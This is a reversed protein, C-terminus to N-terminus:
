TAATTDGARPPRRAHRHSVKRFGQLPVALLIRTGGGAQTDVTLEGGVAAARRGLGPLGRHGDQEAERARLPDIGRGDDEVRAVIRGDRVEISVDVSRAESHRAANHISEKLILYVARRVEPLLEIQAAGAPSAFRLVMERAELLDAAFRRLRVIVSEFDDKQPDVSWVIESANEALESAERGLQDLVGHTEDPSERLKRRALEGLVGIRSLGSGIDDHLDSAIRTRAREVALLRATRIRAAGWVGLALLAVATAKVWWRSYLPPPLLFALSAPAGQRGDRSLARLELDYRAPALHPFSLTRAATPESWLGSEGGITHQVLVGAEQDLGVVEVDVELSSQDPRLDLRSIAASGLEPVAVPRGGVRVATIQLRPPSALAESRPDLRVLGHLTGFWLAGDRAALCTWVFNNPLGDDVSYSRVRGSDTALRDLGKSHGIYIAGDDAEALCRASDTTLGQTVGYRQVSLRASEPDDIRAVGGAATAVWLRGRRDLMLDNVFGPPIGAESGYYRWGASDRRALGGLYFGMWLGGGRDEAFATPAGGTKDAGHIERVVELREGDVIRVLPWDAILSVWIDGRRDEYVRFVDSGPLGHPTDFHRDPSAHSLTDLSAFRFLGEGTPYWIRGRHDRLIYQNWGWGAATGAVTGPDIGAVFLRRPTLDAFRRGDWRALDRSDTSVLLGEEDDELSSIRDGALGDVRDYTVPGAPRLRALGRSETGFWLTGKRDELLSQIYTEPLGQPTDISRLGHRGIQVAGRHSTLWVGERGRTLHLGYPNLLGHRTDYLILDGPRNPVEGPFRPPRAKERLPREDLPGDFGPWTALVVGDWLCMWLRGQRDFLLSGVLDSGGESSASVRYVPSRTQGHQRMLGYQGFWLDGNPAEAIAPAKMGAPLDVARPPASGASGSATPEFVYLETRTGVWLRGTHDAYLTGIGAMGTAPVPMPAFVAGARSAVADPPMRVLGQGTGVWIAGDTTEVVTDIRPGPLGDRSDYNRFREGGFRSLGSSTAIWLYGRSDEFIDRVTDGALGDAVTYVRIPLREARLAASVALAAMWFLKCATSM